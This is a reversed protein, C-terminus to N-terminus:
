RVNAGRRINEEEGQQQGLSFYPSYLLIYLQDEEVALQLTGDYWISDYVNYM